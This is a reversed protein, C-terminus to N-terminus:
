LAEPSLGNLAINFFTEHHHNANLGDLVFFSSALVLSSGRFPLSELLFCLAQNPASSCTWSPSTGLAQARSDHQQIVSPPQYVGMLLGIQNSKNQRQLDNYM